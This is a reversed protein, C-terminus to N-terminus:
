KRCFGKQVVRHAERLNDISFRIRMTAFIEPMALKKLAKTLKEEDSPPVRGGYGHVILNRVVYLAKFRDWGPLEEFRIAKIHKLYSEVKRFGVGTHDELKETHSGELDTALEHLRIEVLSTLGVVQINGRNSVGLAFHTLNFDSKKWIKHAQILEESLREIECEYSSLEHEFFSPM